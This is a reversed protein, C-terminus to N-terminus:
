QHCSVADTPAAPMLSSIFHIGLNMGRLILIIGTLTIFFPVAMKFVARYRANLFQMGYAALLMAPSTGAGFSTMFTASQLLGPTTLATALAIYVMGCPLLGNALGLLLFGRLGKYCRLVTAILKQIYLYAGSLLNFRVSNKRIFYTAAAILMIIGLAISFGQQWGSMNISRGALGIILGLISYTIIRGLQYLLLALFKQIPRLHWTPIALSLPGCMGVCHLSGAFGLMFGGIIFETM